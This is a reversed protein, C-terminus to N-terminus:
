DVASPVTATEVQLDSGVEDKSVDNSVAIDLGLDNTSDLTTTSSTVSIDVVEQEIIFESNDGFLEIEAVPYTKDGVALEWKGFTDNLFSDTSAIEALADYYRTLQSEENIKQEQDASFALYQAIKSIRTLFDSKDSVDFAYLLEGWIDYQSHEHKIKFKAISEGTAPEIASFLM